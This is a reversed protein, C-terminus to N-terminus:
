FTMGVALIANHRSVDYEYDSYRYEVKAFMNSSFTHRFGAGLRFGDLNEGDSESFDPGRYTAKIRANTYGGLVYLQGTPTLNTGVRAVVSLDRGSKICAREDGVTECEKTTSDDIGAEIGAFLNGGIPAQYGAAVGFAVGEDSFGDVDVADLGVQAQVYAQANAAVPSTLVAAAITAALYIKM